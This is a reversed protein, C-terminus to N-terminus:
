KGAQALLEANHEGLSPPGRRIAAPSDSFRTTVDCMVLDGESPHRFHRFFRAQQLHPDTKLDNIDNVCAAPLDQERLLRLWENTPRQLLVAEVIGYLELINQMRKGITRFREDQMLEPRGLLAFLRMWQADTNAVLGLHGDQTRLPRHSPSFVRAYGEWAEEEGAEPVLVGDAMHELLNFAAMTELMPVEVKQARGTRERHLLAATIGQALYIGCLKDTLLMPVYQPSGFARANIAAMGSLGQIVDDYAPQDFYEGGGGFGLASAHVLRPFAERLQEYGLGLRGLATSRMNHVFVDAGALLRRLAKHGEETKLDLVVSRKNRNINLFFSGMGKNRSRGIGRTPDGEPPEVKIVDAGMDGLLMTAVPGFVFNTADVVVMGELPGSM